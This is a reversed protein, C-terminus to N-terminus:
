LEAVQEEITEETKEAGEAPETKEPDPTTKENEDAM